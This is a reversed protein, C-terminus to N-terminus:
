LTISIRHREPLKPATLHHCIESPTPETGVTPAQQQALQLASGSDKSPERLTEDIMAFRIQNLVRHALQDRLPHEPDCQTVLIEIVM